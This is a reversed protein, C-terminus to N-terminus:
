REDIDGRPDRQQPEPGGPRSRTPWRPAMPPRRPRARTATPTSTATRSPSGARGRTTSTWSPSGRPRDEDREVRIVAPRRRDLAPEGGKVLKRPPGGATPVLWVHGEDVYAVTSATPRCARRPTTGGPCPDRGTTLREPPADGELDLLWMDSTERDEIFVAGASRASRSRARGRRPSWRRSVGTRRHGCTRARSRACATHEDKGVWISRGEGNVERRSARSRRASWSVSRTWTTAARRCWWPRCGSGASCAAPLASARRTVALPSEPDGGAADVGLPVVLAARRRRGGVGRARGRGRGLADDGTGPALLINRNSGGAGREDEFGLFHPFWGAGPDVHVSGTLM